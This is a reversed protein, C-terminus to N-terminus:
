PPAATGDLTRLLARNYRNEEPGQSWLRASFILREAFGCLVHFSLSAADYRAGTLREAHRVFASAAGDTTADHVDIGHSPSVFARKRREDASQHAYLFLVALDMFLSAVTSNGWDILRLARGHRRVNAPMLDGHCRTLHVTKTRSRGRLRHLLDILRRTRREHGLERMGTRLSEVHAEADVAELGWSRYFAFLRPLLWERLVGPWEGAGVPRTNREYSTRLLQAGDIRGHELIRHSFAEMGAARLHELSVREREVGSEASARELKVVQGSGRRLALLSARKRPVLVLGPAVPGDASFAVPPGGPRGLAAKLRRALSKRLLHRTEFELLTPLAAVDRRQQLTGLVPDGEFLTRGDASEDITVGHESALYARCLHLHAPSALPSAM